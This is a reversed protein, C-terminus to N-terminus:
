LGCSSCFNFLDFLPLHFQSPPLSRRQLRSVQRLVGSGGHVQQVTKPPLWDAAAQLGLSTRRHRLM